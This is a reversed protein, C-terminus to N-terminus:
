KADNRILIFKEKLEKYAKEADIAIDGSKTSTFKWALIGFLDDWEKFENKM